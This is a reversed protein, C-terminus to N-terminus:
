DISFILKVETGQDPISAIQLSGHHLRMIQQSLSL